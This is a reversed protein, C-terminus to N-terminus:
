NLNIKKPEIIPSFPTEQNIHLFQSFEKKNVETSDEDEPAKKM